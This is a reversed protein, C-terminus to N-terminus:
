LEFYCIYGGYSTRRDTWIEWDSLDVKQGKVEIFEVSGRYHYNIGYGINVFSKPPFKYWYEENEIKFPKLGEKLKKLSSRKIKEVGAVYKLNHIFTSDTEKLFKMKVILVNESSNKLYYHGSISCGILYFCVLLGISIKPNM